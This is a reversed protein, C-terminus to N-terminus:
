SVAGAQAEITERSSSADCKRTSHAYLHVMAIGCGTSLSLMLVFMSVGFVNDDILAYFHEYLFYVDYFMPFCLVCSQAVLRMIMFVNHSEVLYRSNDWQTIGVEVSKGLESALYAGIKGIMIHHQVVVLTFALCIFPLPLMVIIAHAAPVSKQSYKLHVDLIYQFYVGIASIYFLLAGDRLVIRQGVQSRAAEYYSIFIDKELESAM